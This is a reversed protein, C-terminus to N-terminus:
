MFFIRSIGQGSNHKSKNIAVSQLSFPFVANTGGYSKVKWQIKLFEMQPYKKKKLYTSFAFPLFRPTNFM